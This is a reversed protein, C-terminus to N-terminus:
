RRLASQNWRILANLQERCQNFAGIDALWYSAASRATLTPASGDAADPQAAPEPLGEFGRAGNLMRIADLSYDCDPKDPVHQNVERQLESIRKRSAELQGLYGAVVEAGRADDARRAENMQRITASLARVESGKVLRVGLWAGSLFSVLLAALILWLRFQSLFATLASFM